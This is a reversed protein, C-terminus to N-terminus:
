KKYIKREWMLCSNIIDKLSTKHITGFFKKMVRNDSIIASMDGPRRPKFKIKIKKKSYKSFKKIINLVSFGFGYGCNLTISKKNKNIYDLSSIHIASIDNVSIYDRICTGDRTAYNKGYVKITFNNKKILETSLNKFLQDNKNILGTRLNKDAGVVNFYRLIAYSFKYKDSFNKLLLESLYKTQGYYSVPDCFIEENVKTRKVDGYVACTSSFIFNRLKNNVAAKLLM